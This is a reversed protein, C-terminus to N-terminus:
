AALAAIAEQLDDVGRLILEGEELSGIQEVPGFFIDSGAEEAAEAKQPLGGIPGVDGDMQITGTAAITRGRAIDDEEIMDFIALAYALGASPGGIDTKKFRIEFPLDIELDRTEILVGIGVAGEEVTQLRGSRVTIPLEKSGREVTLEFTTGPPRSSITRRLDSTVSVSGGDVATIVDGPRIRRGAPAGPLVDVVRVGTGEISVDLGAARAAAAAAFMQSEEFLDRQVRVFEKQSIGEPVVSSLPVVDRDPHLVAWAVGLTSPQNVSVALLLYRGNPKQSPAGRISIHDSVDVASGPAIVAFPPHYFAGAALAIALSVVAWVAWGARRSGPEQMVGRAQELELAKAIDSISLIGAIRGEERGEQLVVARRPGSQLAELADMMKTHPGLVTVNERPLMIDRVLTEDREGTPVSGALRLSVLGLLAGDDTVPYTSHGRSRVVEDLFERVSVRGSVTVPNETMLDRVTLGRFTQRILVFAAEAEAAQLLFWGLLVFWIGGTFASSFFSLIGFGVLVYAFAKGARAASITAATFSKQRHWLWARLVRGGDLPLAPVLNFAVVIANIRALYAAVGEITPPLGVAGAAWAVLGFAGALLVSVLPGAIAIRFEAGASPFMGAFRAVGGFLWLTIGDVKMGEKLARFAHGLEHLLISAFFVAASVVGMVLYSSESLGPHARPFLQTSLSWAILAFVLLWSWHAGISIGAVRMFTFSPSLLGDGETKRRSGTRTEGPRLERDM